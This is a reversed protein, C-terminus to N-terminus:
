GDSKILYHWSDSLLPRQEHQCFSQLLNSDRNEDSIWELRRAIIGVDCGGSVVGFSGRNDFNVDDSTPCDVGVSSGGVVVNNECNLEKIRFDVHKM